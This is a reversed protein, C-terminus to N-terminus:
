RGPFINGSSHCTLAPFRTISDEYTMQYIILFVSLIQIMEHLFVIKRHIIPM